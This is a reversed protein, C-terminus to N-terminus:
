CDPSAVDNRRVSETAVRNLSFGRGPRAKWVPCLPLTSHREPPALHVTGGAGGSSLGSGRGWETAPAVWTRPRDSRTCPAHTRRRAQSLKRRSTRSGRWRLAESQSSKRLNPKAHSRLVVTRLYPRAIRGPAFRQSHGRDAFRSRKGSRYTHPGHVRDM